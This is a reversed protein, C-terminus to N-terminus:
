KLSNPFPNRRTHARSSSVTAEFARLVRILIKYIITHTAITDWSITKNHGCKNLKLISEIDSLNVPSIQSSVQSSGVYGFDMWQKIDGEMRSWETLIELPLLLSVGKLHGWVYAKNRCNRDLQLLMNHPALAARKGDTKHLIIKLSGPFDMWVWTWITLGRLTLVCSAM